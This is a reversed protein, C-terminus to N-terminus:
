RRPTCRACEKEKRRVKTDMSAEASANELASSPKWLPVTTFSRGMLAPSVFSKPEIGPDPPDGPPPCPWGSWHEQRFSDMSLPAQCVVPWPTVFAPCSQACTCPCKFIEWMFELPFQWM